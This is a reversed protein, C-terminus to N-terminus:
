GGQNNSFDTSSTRNTSKTSDSADTGTRASSDGSSAGTQNLNKANTKSFTSDTLGVKRSLDEPLYVGEEEDPIYVGKRRNNPRRMLAQNPNDSKLFRAAAIGLAFAGGIFVAPNRRAFNEVDKILDSLDKNELYDSVQEVQQALSDGYKATLNALPTQKDDDRLNEGMQRIGDAVSSLGRALNEKQTDIQSSAQETVKDYAQGATDKAQEYIEKADISSKSSTNKADGSASGSSSNPMKNTQNKTNQDNADNSKSDDVRSPKTEAM